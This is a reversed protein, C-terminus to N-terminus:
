MLRLDSNPDVPSFPSRGLQQRLIGISACMAEGCYCSSFGGHRRWRRRSGKLRLAM